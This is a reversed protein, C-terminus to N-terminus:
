IMWPLPIVSPMMCPGRPSGSASMAVYPDCQSRLNMGSQADLAEFLAQRVCRAVTDGIDTSPGAATVLDDARALCAIGVQDTGSGTAVGKSYLSRAMLEQLVSSKAQTATLM